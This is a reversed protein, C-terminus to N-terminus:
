EHLEDAVGRRELGIKEGAIDVHDGFPADAEGDILRELKALFVRVTEDIHELRVKEHFVDLERM